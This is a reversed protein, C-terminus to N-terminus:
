FRGYSRVKQILNRIREEVPPKPQPPEFISFQERVFAAAEVTEVTPTELHIKPPQFLFNRNKRIWDRAMKYDRFLREKAKFEASHFETRGRARKPPVVAHCMEHHMVSAIVFLPVDPQDLVPNLVIRNIKPEYRGLQRVRRVHSARVRGWDLKCRVRGEFYDRNIADFLPKLHYVKGRLADNSSSM